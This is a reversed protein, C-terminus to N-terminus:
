RTLPLVGRVAGAFMDGVDGAFHLFLSPEILELEMLRWAGSANRLMDVRAYTIPADGCIASAAALAAHALKRASDPAEIAEEWGGFQDQVRFDGKAPRKIIAHSFQGGFLFLSYEGEAVIAPEFPQILLRQPDAYEPLPDGPGLRYTGDAGGSIAPKVIVIDAGFASRAEALVQTSIAKVIRTPIIPIGGAELDLLYSKDTNWRLIRVPNALPLAAAEMQELLAFWVACDRQYGWALLPLVLDFGSVDGPNTWSRFELADGFLRRYHSAPLSWDEYYDPDPTLICLSPPV